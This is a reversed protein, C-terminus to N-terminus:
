NCVGLVFFGEKGRELQLCIRGGAQPESMIKIGDLQLQAGDRFVMQVTPVARWMTWFQPDFCWPMNEVRDYGQIQKAVADGLKDFVLHPVVSYPKGLDVNINMPQSNEQDEEETLNLPVGGVTIGKLEIYYLRGMTFMPTFVLSSEDYPGVQIYGVSSPSPLYYSFARYRHSSGRAVQSLFSLRHGGLGIIGAYPGFTGNYGQSCGFVFDPFSEAGITTLTDTSLFGFSGSSDYYQVQYVCINKRRFCMTDSMTAGSTMLCSASSCPLNGYTSSTTGDFLPDDQQYCGKLCPECQIWSFSSGTDVLVLVNYKKPPTGLGIQAVFGYLKGASSIPLSISTPLSRHRRFFLSASLEHGNDQDAPHWFPSCPHQHHVLTLRIDISSSNRVFKDNTWIKSCDIDDMASGTATPSITISGDVDNHFKVDVEMELGGASSKDGQVREQFEPPLIPWGATVRTRDSCQHGQGGRLVTGHACHM